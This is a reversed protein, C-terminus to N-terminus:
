FQSTIMLQIIHRRYVGEMEKQYWFTYGAETDIKTNWRYGIAGLLRNQDFISKNVRDKHIVNLFLENQIGTYLGKSFDRNAILPIQASVFARARQSFNVQEDKVFRQELRGRLNLETLHWKFKFSYQEFIRNELMYTTTGNDEHEWDGKYAYGLAASHHSNFKYSLAPRLLLTTLYSFRDASRLQVDALVDFKKSITQTHSLFFWAQTETRQAFGVTYIFLLGFLVSSIKLM